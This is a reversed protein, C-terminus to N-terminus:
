LRDLNCALYTLGRHLPIEMSHCYQHKLQPPANQPALALAGEDIVVYEAQTGEAPEDSRYIWGIVKDGPSFRSAGDASRVVTGALDWGLIYPNDPDSASVFGGDVTLTDGPTIDSAEVKVLVQGPGPVPEPLDVIKIKEPEGFETIVAAQMHGGKDKKGEM